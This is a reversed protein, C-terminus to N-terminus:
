SGGFTTNQRPQVPCKCSSAMIVVYPDGSNVGGFLKSITQLLFTELAQCAQSVCVCRGEAEVQSGEVGFVAAAAAAAIAAFRIALRRLRESQRTSSWTM